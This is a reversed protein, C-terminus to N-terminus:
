PTNRDERIEGGIMVEGDLVECAADPSDYKDPSLIMIHKRNSSNVLLGKKRGIMVVKANTDTM